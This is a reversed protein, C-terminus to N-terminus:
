PPCLPLISSAHEPIYKCSFEFERLNISHGWLM